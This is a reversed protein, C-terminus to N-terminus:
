LGLCELLAKASKQGIANADAPVVARRGPAPQAFAPPLVWAALILTVSGTVLVRKRRSQM